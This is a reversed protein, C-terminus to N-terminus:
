ISNEYLAVGRRPKYSHNYEYLAVTEIMEKSFFRQTINTYFKILPVNNKYLSGPPLDPNPKRWFKIRFLVMPDRYNYPLTEPCNYLFTEVLINGEALAEPLINPRSKKM